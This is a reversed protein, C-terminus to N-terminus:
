VKCGRPPVIFINADFTGCNTTLDCWVPLNPSLEPFSSYCLLTKSVMVMRVINEVAFHLISGGEDQEYIMMSLNDHTVQM